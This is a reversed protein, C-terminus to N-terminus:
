KKLYVKGGDLRISDTSYAKGSITFTVGEVDDCNDIISMAYADLILKELKQDKKATSKMDDDFDIICINDKVSIANIAVNIEEDELADSVYESIMEPTVTVESGIATEATDLKLGSLKIVYYRVSKLVGGNNNGTTPVVIIRQTPVNRNETGNPDTLDEEKEKESLLVYICLIVLLIIAVICVALRIDKKM